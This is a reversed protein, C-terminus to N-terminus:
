IISNVPLFVPPMFALCNSILFLYACYPKIVMLAAKSFRCYFMLQGHQICSSIWSIMCLLWIGTLFFFGFTSLFYSFTDGLPFSSGYLMGTLISNPVGSSISTKGDYCIIFYESFFESADLGLFFSCSGGLLIYTKLPGTLGM